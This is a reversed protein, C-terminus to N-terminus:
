RICSAGVAANTARLLAPSVISMSYMGGHRYFLHYVVLRLACDYATSMRDPKRTHSNVDFFSQLSAEYRRATDEIMAMGYTDRGGTGKSRIGELDGDVGWQGEATRREM